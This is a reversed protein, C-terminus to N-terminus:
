LPMVTIFDHDYITVAKFHVKEAGQICSIKDDRASPRAAVYDKPRTRARAFSDQMCSQERSTITKMVHIKHIAGYSNNHICTRATTLRGNNLAM